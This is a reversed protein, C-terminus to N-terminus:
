NSRSDEDHQRQSHVDALVRARYQEITIAGSAFEVLLDISAPTPQCGELVSSAIANRVARRDAPSLRRSRADVYAWM